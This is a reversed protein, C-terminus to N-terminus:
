AREKCGDPASIWGAYELITEQKVREHIRDRTPDNFHLGNGSLTGTVQACRLDTVLTVWEQKTVIASM